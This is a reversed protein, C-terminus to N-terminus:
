KVEVVHLPRTAEAVPERFIAVGGVHAQGRAQFSELSMQIAQELDYEEGKDAKQLPTPKTPKQKVPKPKPQKATVPKAQKAPAPKVPKDAKPTTM